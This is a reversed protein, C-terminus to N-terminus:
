LVSRGGGAGEGMDALRHSSLRPLAVRSLSLTDIWTDSVEGGGRVAEIFTRYLPNQLSGYSTHLPGDSGRWADGGEERTEARRFYPLVHRYAWGEAGAEEWADVYPNIESEVFSRVVKRFQDHESTFEM